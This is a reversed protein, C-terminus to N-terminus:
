AEAQGKTKTSPRSARASRRGTGQQPATDQHPASGQQPATAQQRSATDSGAAPLEAGRRRTFLRSRVEALRTTARAGWSAAHTAASPGAGPVELDIQAVRLGAQSVRAALAKDSLGKRDYHAVDLAARSACHLHPHGSALALDAHDDAVADLLPQACHASGAAADLALVLRHRCARGPLVESIDRNRVASYGTALAAATGQRWEHVLVQAGARRAKAETDDSSADDVVIVTDVGNIEKAARVTAAIVATSNRAPIIM